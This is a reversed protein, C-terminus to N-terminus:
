TRDSIQGLEISEDAVMTPISNRVPYLRADNETVLGAEIPEAIKQDQHDRLEGAAVLRNLREIVTKEAVKLKSGSLPCRLMAILKPEIM